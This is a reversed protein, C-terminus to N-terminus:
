NRRIVLKQQAITHTDNVQIHYVGNPLHSLDLNMPFIDEGEDIILVKGASDTIRLTTTGRNHYRIQCIDSAPNPYVSLVPNLEVYVSVEDSIAYTGNYDYQKLRYYNWGKAPSHDIAEYTLLSYSDGAGQVIQVNSWDHLDNSKQVIFYDNNVESLTRWNVEVQNGTQVARLDLLEIPLMLNCDIDATGTFDLEISNNVYSWNSLCIIFQEGAFVNLPPGYNGANGGTPIPTALGTGGFSVANWTCRVPPLTNNAIDYCATESYPWMAWDYYGYQTGNAGFTFALLGDTAVTFMM